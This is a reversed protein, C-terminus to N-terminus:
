MLQEVLWGSWERVDLVSRAKEASRKNKRSIWGAAIVRREPGIWNCRLLALIKQRVEKEHAGLNTQWLTELLACISSYAHFLFSSLLEALAYPASGSEILSVPCLRHNLKFCQLYTSIPNHYVSPFLPYQTISHTTLPRETMRCHCRSSAASQIDSESGCCDAERKNTRCRHWPKASTLVHKVEALDADTPM